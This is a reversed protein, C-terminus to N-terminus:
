TRKAPLILRRFKRVRRRLKRGSTGPMLETFLRWSEASYLVSPEIRAAIQLLRLTILSPRNAPLKSGLLRVLEERTAKSSSARLGRFERVSRFERSYEKLFRKKVRNRGQLSAFTARYTNSQLENIEEQIGIAKPHVRILVLPEAIYAVERARRVMRLALGLDDGIGEDEYLRVEEHVISRRALASPFSIWYPPYDILLRRVIDRGTEIEDERGGGFFAESHEKGDPGVHLFQSASHVVDVTPREDLLAVKKELNAPLMLDDDPLVTIYPARGLRFCRSLNARAGINTENCTYHVREDRFSAIVDSTKDTSANDSVIIEVDTLSQDLVSAVAQSLMHARNYTPIAV